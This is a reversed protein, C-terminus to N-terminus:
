TILILKRRISMTKKIFDVLFVNEILRDFKIGQRKAVKYALNKYAVKYALNKVVVKYALNKVFILGMELLLEKFTAKFLKLTCVEASSQM